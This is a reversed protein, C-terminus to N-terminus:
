AVFIRPPSTPESGATSPRTTRTRTKVASSGTFKVFANLTAFRTFWADATM